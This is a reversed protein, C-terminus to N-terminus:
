LAIIYAVVSVAGILFCYWSFYKFYRNMVLKVTLRLAVYGVILATVMGVIYAGIEAGGFGAEMDSLELILAGIIAPISMIFSFKVAFMRDFGCLLACVITSGSRSLGPLTAIGQATGIAAADAYSADRPKKHREKIFDSTLIIGGTGILCIGTVLLNGEVGEVVSKLLIGIIGTPIVSVLLLLVFRRYSSTALKKYPLKNDKLGLNKFFRGINKFVDGAIKFFEVVLRLIDRYFVLCVAILTAFHLLVDFLIGTDTEVKLINKFMALPGSSSVPLFETLGQVIGMVIAQGFSM